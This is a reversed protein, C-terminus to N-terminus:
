GSLGEKRAKMRDFLYIIIVFAGALYTPYYYMFYSGPETLFLIPIRGFCILAMWLLPDKITKTRFIIILLGLVIPIFNWFLMTFNLTTIKSKSFDLYDVAIQRIKLNLPYNMPKSLLLEAAKNEPKTIIYNNIYDSVYYAQPSFGAAAVFTRTRASLFSDPNLTILKIYEKKFNSFEQKTFGERVAGNWFAPTEYYYAEAKTKEIDIVKDMIELDIDTINVNEDTLIISLPNMYATLEYKMKVYNDQRILDYGKSLVLVGIFISFTFYVIRKRMGKDRYKVFLFLPILLVHYIGETRWTSLIITLFGIILLKSKGVTKESINFYIYGILWLEFIALMTSRFTILTSFIISPWLALLALILYKMIKINFKFQLKTIIWSATFSMVVIQIFAISGASPFFYMCIIYFYSTLYSQWNEINFYTASEFVWFEDWTFIGPWSLLLWVLLPIFVCLLNIMWSKNFPNKVGRLFIILFRAGFYCIIFYIIKSSIYGKYSAISDSFVKETFFSVILLMAATILAYVDVRSEARKFYPEM